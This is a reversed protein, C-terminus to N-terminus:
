NNLDITKEVLKIRLMILTDLVRPDVHGIKFSSANAAYM